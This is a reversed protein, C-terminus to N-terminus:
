ICKSKTKNKNKQEAEIKNVSSFLKRKEVQEKM